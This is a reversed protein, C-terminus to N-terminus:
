VYLLGTLTGWVADFLGLIAAIILTTIIVVTTASKTEEKTPWTVKKLEAVVEGSFANVRANKFAFFASSAAILLGLGTSATFQSGLIEFDPINFAFAVANFFKSLAGWLLVGAALFAFVVWRQIGHM